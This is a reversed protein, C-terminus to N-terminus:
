RVLSLVKQLARSGHVPYSNATLHNSTVLEEELISTSRTYAQTNENDNKRSPSRDKKEEKKHQLEDIEDMKRKGDKGNM